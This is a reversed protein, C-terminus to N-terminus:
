FLNLVSQDNNISYILFYSEWMDMSANQIWRDNLLDHPIQKVISQCLSVFRINACAKIVLLYIISNAQINEHKMREFLQLTKESQNLDNYSKMLSGYTIVDRHIREFLIEATSIDNYRCFMNFVTPLLFRSQHFQRPLQSFIKKALVLTKEDKLQACASFFVITTIEDPKDIDSFLDIAKQPMEHELYGQLFFIIKGNLFSINKGKMMITLTVNDKQIQSFFQECISISEHKLLMQLFANSIFPDKRHNVSLKKWLSQAFEFSQRDSLQACIKLIVAYTYENPPIPMQEFMNLAEKGRNNEQLGLM